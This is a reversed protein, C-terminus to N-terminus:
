WFHHGNPVAGPFVYAYVLVILGVLGALALSHKLMARFLLGEQGEQGTVACAIVLSQAAILKGMVGGCSNAAGMLVPSLGLKNATIMQFSGFLANSGAVTGSLGV